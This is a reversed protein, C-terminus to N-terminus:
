WSGVTRLVIRRALDQLAEERAERENRALEGASYYVADGELGDEEWIVAGEPVSELVVSSRITLLRQEVDSESDGYTYPELIYETVTGRVRADASQMGSVAVSGDVVFERSLFKELDAEISHEYTDNGFPGVKIRRIDQPMGTRLTYGCSCVLSVAAIAAAQLLSKKLNL